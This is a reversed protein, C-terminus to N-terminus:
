ETEFEEIREIEKRLFETSIGDQGFQVIIKESDRDIIRCEVQNGNKLYVIANPEIAVPVPEREIFEYRKVGTAAVKADEFFEASSALEFVDEDKLFDQVEKEELLSFASGSDIEKNQSQDELREALSVVSPLEQLKKYSDSKLFKDRAEPNVVATAITDIKIFKETYKEPVESLPKLGYKMARSNRVWEEKIPTEEGLLNMVWYTAAVLFWATLGGQILAFFASVMKSTTRAPGKLSEKRKKYYRSAIVSGILTLLFYVLIYAGFVILFSRFFQMLTTIEHQYIKIMEPLFYLGTLYLLFFVLGIFSRLALRLLGILLYIIIVALIFIDFIM